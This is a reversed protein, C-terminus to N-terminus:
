RYGAAVHERPQAAATQAALPDADDPYKLMVWVPLGVTFAVMLVCLPINMWIWIWSVAGVGSSENPVPATEGGASVTGAWGSQWRVQLQGGAQLRLRRIPRPHILRARAREEKDLCANAGAM